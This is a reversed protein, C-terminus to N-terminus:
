KLDYSLLEWSNYADEYKVIGIVPSWWYKRDYGVIEFETVNTYTQTGIELSPYKAVCKFVWDLEISNGVDISETYVIGQSPIYLELNVYIGYGELYFEDLFPLNSDYQVHYHQFYASEDYGLIKYSTDIDVQILTVEETVGSTDVYLWTSGTDHIFDILENYPLIVQKSPSSIDENNEEKACSLAIISIFLTLATYKM